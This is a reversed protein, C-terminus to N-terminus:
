RTRRRVLLDSPEGAAPRAANRRRVGPEPPQHGHAPDGRPHGPLVTRAPEDRLYRDRGRATPPRRRRQGGDEDCPRWRAGRRHTAGDISKRQSSRSGLDARRRRLVLSTRSQTRRGGCRLHRADHPASGAHNGDPGSGKSDALEVFADVAHQAIGLAISGISMSSLTATPMRYLPGQFSGNVPKGSAVAFANREPIFLADVAIDSSGTGRLGTVKWTDLIKADQRPFSMLRVDPAGSPTMVPQGDRMIIAGGALWRAHHSGSAYPWQATIVYGGEVQEAPQFPFGAVAVIGVQEGGFQEHLVEESAAAGIMGIGSAIAVVWGVSGDIRALAEFVHLSKPLPTEHGGVAQPLWLQFLGAERLGEIVEDSLHRQQDAEDAHQEILPKLRAVADLPSLTSSGTM